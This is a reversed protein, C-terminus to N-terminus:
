LGAKRAVADLMCQLVHILAENAGVVSLSFDSDEICNYHLARATSIARNLTHVEGPASDLARAEREIEEATLPKQSAGRGAYRYNFCAVNAESIRALSRCADRLDSAHDADHFYTPRDRVMVHALNALEECSFVLVSM